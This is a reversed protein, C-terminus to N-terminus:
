AEATVREPAALEPIEMRARTGRGPLSVLHLRYNAGYIVHLRENVNRLGIGGPTEQPSRDPAMGLGNDIVEIVTHGRERASRLVLEGDGMKNVLGHKLSNEVLPQLIMSPVMAELSDPAIDKVVNLRSGFRVCEIDLYEDIAELEERLTVFHEQSRLLRRLLASLKVILVRATEPESRILSSISTLTNFLFHPNIQSALAEIRATMLLKEQEQLKHEIRASNWIKIPIAVALVTDLVVLVTMNTSGTGLSFLRHAGFRTSLVQRLLELLIPAAILIVQWDVQFRRLFRWAYRHLGTFVFPSFHWIAEKPCVERLGGGAFGCGASFPLAALEGAAFAPLGVMVGVIAGAYPGAVLGAIFPGSLSLDAANYGLLLRSLVGITLPVGLAVIFVMREPWDRRETLLLRRFRAYRVLMTALTAVVALQVLLTTLLAQEASLFRPEQVV